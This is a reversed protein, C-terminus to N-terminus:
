SFLLYLKLKEEATKPSWNRPIYSLSIVKETDYLFADPKSSHYEIEFLPKQYNIIAQYTRNPGIYFSAEVTKGSLVSYKFWARCETCNFSLLKDIKRERASMHVKALYDKNYLKAYCYQCTYPPYWKKSM